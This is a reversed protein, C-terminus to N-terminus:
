ELKTIDAIAQLREVMAARENLIAEIAHGAYGAWEPTNRREEETLARANNPASEGAQWFVQGVLIWGVQQGDSHIAHRLYNLGAHCTFPGFGDAAAIERWTQRCAAAGRETALMGRCLECVTSPATPPAGANDVLVAGVRSIQTFLNPIPQICHTPFARAPLDLAAVPSESGGLLREVEHAHFRWQQGIKVGKLRGDNLMRYITIRDVKLLDQVQRTTLLENM